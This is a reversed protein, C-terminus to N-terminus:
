STKTATFSFTASGCYPAAAPQATFSATGTLTGDAQFAGQILTIYQPETTITYSFSDQATLTNASGATPVTVVGDGGCYSSQLTGSPTFVRWPFLIQTFARNAMTVSISLTAATNLSSTATSSGSWVGYYSKQAAGPDAPTNATCGCIYVALSLVFLTKSVM